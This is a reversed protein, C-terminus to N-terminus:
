RGDKMVLARHSVMPHAKFQTPCLTIPQPDPSPNRDRAIAHCLHVFDAAAAAIERLIVKAHVKPQAFRLFDVRNLNAPGRTMSVSQGIQFRVLKIGNQFAGAQHIM